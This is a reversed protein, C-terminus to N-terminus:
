NIGNKGFKSGLIAQWSSECISRCDWFRELIECRSSLTRSRFISKSFRVFFISLSISFYMYSYMWTMLSWPSFRLFDMLSRRDLCSPSYSSIISSIWFKSIEESCDISMAIWALSMPPDCISEINGVMLFLSSSSSEFEFDIFLNLETVHIM